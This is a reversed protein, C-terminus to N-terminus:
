IFIPLSFLFMCPDSIPVSEYRVLRCDHGVSGRGKVEWRDIVSVHGAREQVLGERWSKLCSRQTSGLM